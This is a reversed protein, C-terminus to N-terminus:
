THELLERYDNKDDLIDPTTNHNLTIHSRAADGITSLLSADKTAVHDDNRCHQVYM